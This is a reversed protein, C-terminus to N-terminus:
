EPILDLFEPKIKIFAVGSCSDPTVEEYGEEDEDDPEIWEVEDEGLEHAIDSEDHFELWDCEQAEVMTDSHWPKCNESDFECYAGRPDYFGEVQQEKIWGLRTQLEDSFDQFEM